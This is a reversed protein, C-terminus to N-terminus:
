ASQIFPRVSESGQSESHLWLVDIFHVDECDNPLIPVLGLRDQFFQKRMTIGYLSYGLSSMFQLVERRSTGARKLWRKDFEM